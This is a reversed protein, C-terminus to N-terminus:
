YFFCFFPIISKHKADRICGTGLQFLCYFAARFLATQNYKELSHPSAAGSQPHSQILWRIIHFLEFRVPNFGKDLLFELIKESLVTRYIYIKDVMGGATTERDFGTLIIGVAATAATGTLNNRAQSM